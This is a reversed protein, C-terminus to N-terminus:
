RSGASLAHEIAKFFAIHEDERYSSEDNKLGYGHNASTKAIVLHLAPNVYVFRNTPDAYISHARPVEQPGPNSGKGHHQDFGTAAGVGGDDQIPLVAVSGSGFNAAFVVVQGVRMEGEVEGGEGVILEGETIVEGTFKGHVRFHADFTLEGSALHSVLRAFLRPGEDAPLYPTLGEAVVM